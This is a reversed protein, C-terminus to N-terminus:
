ENDDTHHKRMKDIIHQPLNQSGKRAAMRLEQIENEINEEEKTLVFSKINSCANGNIISQADISADKLKFDSDAYLKNFRALELENTPCFFGTSSLWEDLNNISVKETNKKNTAM